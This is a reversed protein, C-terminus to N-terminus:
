RYFYDSVKDRYYPSLTPPVSRFQDTAPKLQKIYKEMDSPSPQGYIDGAERSKRQNDEGRQLDAKEHELLRTLIQRQRQITQQTITRNVLDTETQEMQRMIQDVERALKTNGANEEKLQQGYEKMMNRIMEQQAAMKAFEESMTQGQGIKHRGDKQKGQSDLQKKLAELQKNLEQQMQQMSKPSPNKGPKSCQQSSKGAMKRDGKSQRQGKSQRMQNQMQDLSEALVLALNNLATMSYQMPRASQTNKYNGYYGENMSLLSSLSRSISANAEALEKGIISAVELQRKALARLSDDVGKFDDKLQNQRVIIEQYLPDQIYTANLANILEEQNFSIKVINKLLLRIQEADEALEQQEISEQADALASSLEEMADAAKEQQQSADESKGRQLAKQSEQQHNEVQQQLIAPVNFDISPDLEKYESKIQDIVEKQKQFRTNLSQQKEILNNSENPDSQKTERSVDRQEQALKDINQITQEVKKEIELRKMLELNQDLQKELEANDIKLQELEQQVQKKDLEKMMREIESLTAKMKEDMVDNLLRDLERQKGLLRESQERYKQELRNNEQIQRNMQQMMQRVQRQKEAIQELSKKDQWDLDKKDVLKMMMDNIEEQLRHLESIQSEVKQKVEGSNQALLSDIQGETPVKFEFVTSRSHKPGHIADNDYVEFYYSIEDGPRLVLESLNFSFYFEQSSGEGLAIEAESLTKEPSSTPNAVSHAFLLKSFGYDDKIKGRFLRLDPHTSDSLEEVAIMPMADPVATLTYSLTDSHCYSNCVSFSYDITEMVRTSFNTRGNADAPLPSKLGGHSMAFFLSDADQLQFHWSVTTGEPVSADGLDVITEETRGTYPPYSLVMSFSLVSPNPRVMVQYTTSIVGAAELQFSFSRKVQKFLHSFRDSALKSMRSRTGDIVLFVEEPFAEAAVIGVKLDFDEGAQLHLSPNLISFEFPAPRVYATRYNVIRKGPATLVQPALLLLLVAFLLPPLAYKLYKRNKGLDIANLVPVPSMRATKQEVAALLLEEEASNDSQEDMLQLLNLMKDSVEPFHRGIIRAADQRSIRKGYGHMKALPRVVLLAAVVITASIATWFLLARVLPSFWGFHELLVMALFLTLLIAVAILVGRILLNKYYKRIFADLASLIDLRQSM